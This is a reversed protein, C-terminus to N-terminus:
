QFEKPIFEQLRKVTFLKEKSGLKKMRKFLWRPCSGYHLPLDAIGTKM